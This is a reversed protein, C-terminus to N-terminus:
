DQVGDAITQVELEGGTHQDNNVTLNTVNCM